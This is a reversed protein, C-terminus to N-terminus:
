GEDKLDKLDKISLGAVAAATAETIRDLDVALGQLWAEADYYLPPAPAAQPRTDTGGPGPRGPRSSPPRAGALLTGVLEYEGALADGGRALRAGHVPGLPRVGDSSGQDLLRRSGRLAHHGAILAAQWDAVPAASRRPESQYQAYSSEALVLAHQLSPGSGQGEARGATLVSTTASITSGIARLLVAVDRRLEEHAGRPWALLGIVLGIVSGTLIDLFRVEALQWTAPALQAFVFSVVLTFLGQAWGAGRTPGIWFTALMVVPLAVAYATTNGRVLVLLAAAALAGLLAGILAQRVVAGTQAATTRILTLAALMAWFGHPLSDVGAVTRAAALALSIRVANQFYVSRPSLHAVLRHVWLRLSGHGAYWFSADQTRAPRRRRGLALDAATALTVGAYAAEILMAQRHMVMSIIEPAVGDTPVTRLRRYRALADPLRGPGAPRGTRLAAATRRASVAIEHLLELSHAHFGQPGPAPVEQLRALLVRAAMGTHALARERPGPGAPRESEPVHFPRLAEGASRAASRSEDSLTWPPLTLETACRAAAVAGDASLARYSTAPPDPLLLSEALVLLVIGLTTGILREGLTEPAYPPFCPLIYLLQLGPAAGALRPGAAAAFALLFGIVLMGAVAAWTNVALLTGATVLVWGVPLVRLVVAARQRGTGPIRSLGAMAVAAFLGYTATVPQHLGYLCIYFAAVAAVTVRVARRAACASAGTGHRLATAARRLARAPRARARVTASGTDAEPGM